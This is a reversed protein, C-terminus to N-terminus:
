YLMHTVMTVVTVKAVVHTTDALSFTAALVFQRRSRRSSQAPPHPKDPSQPHPKDHPHPKEVSEEDSSSESLSEIMDLEDDEEGGLHDMSSLSGESSQSSLHGGDEEEESSSDGGKRKRRRRRMNMKKRRQLERKSQRQTQDTTTIAIDGKEKPTVKGGLLEMMSVGSENLESWTYHPLKDQERQENALAITAHLM